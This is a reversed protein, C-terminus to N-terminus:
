GLMTYNIVQLIIVAVLLGGGVKMLADNSSPDGKFYKFLNVALMFVGILGMIVSVVNIVLGALGQLTDEAGQLIGEASVRTNSGGQAFTIVPLIAASAATWAKRIINSKEM